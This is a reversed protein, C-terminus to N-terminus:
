HRKEGIAGSPKRQNPKSKNESLLFLLQLMHSFCLLTPSWLLKQEAKSNMLLGRFTAKDDM